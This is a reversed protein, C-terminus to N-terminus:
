HVTRRKGYYRDRGHSTTVVRMSLFVFYYALSRDLLSRRADKSLSYPCPNQPMNRM